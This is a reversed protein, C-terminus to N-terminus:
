SNPLLLFALGSLPMIKTYGSHWQFARILTLGSLAPPVLRRTVEFGALSLRSFSCRLESCRLLMWLVYRYPPYLFIFQTYPVQVDTGAATRASVGQLNGETAFLNLCCCATEAAACYQPCQAESSLVWSHLHQLLLHQFSTPAVRDIGWSTPSCVSPSPTTTSTSPNM